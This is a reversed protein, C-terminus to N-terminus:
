GPRRGLVVQLLGTATGQAEDHVRPTPGGGAIDVHLTALGARRQFLSSRVSGSQAKAVPVATTVRIAVGVRAYLFGERTAHGFNRYAALGLRAMLAVDARMRRRHDAAAAGTDGQAHGAASFTDWISPGRGDLDVGGEIQYASTAAGWLFGPPFAAVTPGSTSRPAPRPSTDLDSVSLEAARAALDTNTSGTVDVVDLSTWLGGPRLLGRRLAPVNLPPRDLDSWRNPSADSPTM